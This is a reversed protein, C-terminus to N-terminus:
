PSPSRSSRTAPRSPNRPFSRTSCAQCSTTSCRSIATKQALGVRERELAANSIAYGTWGAIATLLLLGSALAILAATARNRRSWRWAREVVSARRAQIPRDHLFCDLDNALAQATPYRDKLDRATAKLVITELDRPIAPDLTRPRAPQGDSVKHLLESPSLQGFPPSLTLMEYLTLGLSYVDSRGDTIGRLSEPALYRLTGIVDGSATLEEHGVM